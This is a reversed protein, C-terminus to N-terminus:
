NKLCMCPRVRVEVTYEEGSLALDGKAPSTVKLYSKGPRRGSLAKDPAVLSFESSCGAVAEDVANMVRVKYGGPGGTPQPMVADFTGGEDDLCGYEAHCLDVVWDGCDDDQWFPPVVVCCSCLVPLAVFLTSSADANIPQYAIIPQNHSRSFGLGKLFMPPKNHSIQM